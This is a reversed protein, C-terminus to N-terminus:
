VTKERLVDEDIMGLQGGLEILINQVCFVNVATALFDLLINMSAAVGIAESPIGLQVFLINLAVLAGGMVPPTALALIFSADFAILLWAPNAAMDYSKAISLAIGLYMIVHGPMVLVQGLPVGFNVLKKDIGFRNECAEVNTAFAAASSATTLCILFTPLAKKMIVGPSVRRRLSTFVLYFPILVVTALIILIVGQYSRALESFNDGLLMQFLVGFVFLHLLSSIGDMVTNVVYTLQTILSSIASVKNGLFLMAIGVVVAVFIIQMPNGETFPTFLNDPVIDLLMAILTSADFHGGAGSQMGLFPLMTFFLLMSILLTVVLCNSITKKGIKGLTEVDGMGTISGLISLFILPGSIASLLGMFTDTLPTVIQESLFARTNVPFLQCIGGLVFAAAISILLKTTHSVSEKQPMFVIINKGNKYQWVPLAGMNSLLGRLIMGEEEDSEFPDFADGVVSLEIRLRQFHSVYKLRFGAQEGFHERYKLLIEELTLRFRLISEAEVKYKEMLDNVDQSARDISISDFIYDKM